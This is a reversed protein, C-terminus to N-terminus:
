KPCNSLYKQEFTENIDSLLCLFKDRDSNMRRWMFEALYGAHLGKHVGYKPMYVKAHHWESEICNTCAANSVNKFEKSHNVTVHTYGMKNLNCYAKWCDSHIISGPKIWKKILPLLTKQKRNTVPIMFIKRKDYKERGGFVWQGEVHHGRYYKRKGFKSEDIEVEIGNGGIQTSNDIIRSICCERFFTCWEIATKNSIKLEHMIEHLSFAQSWLYAMELITEMPLKADVLWSNHRITLKVDKTVYNTSNGEVKHIRRCRWMYKDKNDNTKKLEMPKGCSATRKGNICPGPCNVSSRLIYQQKMFKITDDKSGTVEM